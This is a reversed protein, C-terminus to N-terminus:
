IQQAPTGCVTCFGADPALTNGCTACYRQQAVIVPVGCRTCFAAGDPMPGGCNSCSAMAPRPQGCGPCFADLASVPAQCNTCVWNGATPLVGYQGAPVGYYGGSYGPYPVARPPIIAQLSPPGTAAGAEAIYSFWLVAAGVLAVLAVFPWGTPLLMYFSASPDSVYSTRWLKVTYCFMTLVGIWAVWGKYKRSFLHCVLTHALAVLTGIIVVYFLM